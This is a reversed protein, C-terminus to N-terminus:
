VISEAFRKLCRERLAVAYDPQQRLMPQPANNYALRQEIMVCDFAPDKARARETAVARTSDVDLYVLAWFRFPTIWAPAQWM